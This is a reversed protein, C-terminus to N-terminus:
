LGIGIRIIHPMRINETTNLNVKLLMIFWQVSKDNMFQDYSRTQFLVTM